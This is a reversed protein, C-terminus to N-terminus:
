IQAQVSHQINYSSNTSHHSYPHLHNNLFVCGEWLAERGNGAWSTSRHVQRGYTRHSICALEHYRVPVGWRILRPHPLHWRLLVAHDVITFTSWNWMSCLRCIHIMKFGCGYLISYYIYSYMHMLNQLTICIPPHVSEGYRPIRNGSALYSECLHLYVYTRVQIRDNTDRRM